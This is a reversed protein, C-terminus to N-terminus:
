ERLTLTVSVEDSSVLSVMLRQGGIGVPDGPEPIGRTFQDRSAVLRTTYGRRMLLSDQDTARKDARELQDVTGVLKRPYGDLSFEVPTTKAVAKKLGAATQREWRTM